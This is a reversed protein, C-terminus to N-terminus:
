VYDELRGVTYGQRAIERLLIATMQTLTEEGKLQAPTRFHLLVIDGPRFHRGSGRPFVVSKIMMTERWLVVARLGGCSQAAVRTEATFVGYPPRFLGPRTGYEATLRDQQGCIEQRQEAPTKLRLDPHTLTHNEISNGLENLPTFYGYDDKIFDDTLFMTFPLRLDTMMRVFQPDKAVGDDFTLFVVKQTTPVRSIVPLEGGSMRVTKMAPPRPPTRLLPVGWKRFAAARQAATRPALHVVPRVTSRTAAGVREAQLGTRAAPGSPSSLGSCGTLLLLGILAALVATPRTSRMSPSGQRQAYPAYRAGSVGPSATRFGALDKSSTRPTRLRYRATGRTTGTRRGQRVTVFARGHPTPEPRASM